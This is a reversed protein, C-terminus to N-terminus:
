NKEKGVKCCPYKNDKERTPVWCYYCIICNVLSCFVSPDRDHRSICSLPLRFFLNPGSTCLDKHYCSKINLDGPGVHWMETDATM